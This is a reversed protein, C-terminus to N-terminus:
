GREEGESADDTQPTEMDEEETDAAGIEVDSAVLPDEVQTGGEECAEEEEDEEVERAGEAKEEDRAAEEEEESDVAVEM